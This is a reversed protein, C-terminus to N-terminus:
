IGESIISLNQIEYERVLKHCIEYERV